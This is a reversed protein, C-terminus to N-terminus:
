NNEPSFHQHIITNLDKQQTPTLAKNELFTDFLKTKIGDFDLRLRRITLIESVTDTPLDTINAYEQPDLNPLRNIIKLLTKLKQLQHSIEAEVRGEVRGEIRGEVRGEELLMALTSMVKSKVTFELNEIEEQFKQPSREIIAFFYTAIGYLRDKNEEEFIFSINEILLDARFRNAMAFMASRFFRGQLKILEEQPANAIDKFLFSFDPIYTKFDEFYPKDRFLDRVTKPQWKEKGNYFVLPLIPEIRRKEGKSTQYMAQFIYIGLQIAIFEEPELKHEWLLAFFLFEDTSKFQCRYIIDSHFTKFAPNIFSFNELHLTQIDLLAAIEPYFNLLYMTANEKDRMVFQFFQDDPHLVEKKKKPNKM